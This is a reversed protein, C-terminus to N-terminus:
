ACISSIVACTISSALFVPMVTPAVALVGSPTFLSPYRDSVEGTDLGNIPLANALANVTIMAVFLIAAVVPLAINNKMHIISTCNVNVRPFLNNLPNLRWSQTWLDSPM